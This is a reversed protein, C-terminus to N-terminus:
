PQNEPKKLKKKIKKKKLRQFQFILLNTANGDIDNVIHIQQSWIHINYKQLSIRINSTFTKINKKNKNQPPPLTQKESEFKTQNHFKEAQKTSSSKQSKNKCSSCRAHKTTAPISQVCIRFNARLRPTSSQPERCPYRTQADFSKRKNSAIPRGEIAPL